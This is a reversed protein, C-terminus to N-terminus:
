SQWVFIMRAREILTPQTLGKGDFPRQIRALLQPLRLWFTAYTYLMCRHEPPAGLQWCM